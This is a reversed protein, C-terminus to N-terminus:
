EYSVQLGRCDEAIGVEEGSYNARCMAVALQETGGWRKPIIEV